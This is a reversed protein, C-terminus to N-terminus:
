CIRRYDAGEHTGVYRIEVLKIARDAVRWLAVYTPCGKKLHCHYCDDKGIIKGFNPWQVTVPGGEQIDKILFKLSARRDEPLRKIQKAAKSSFIVTWSM